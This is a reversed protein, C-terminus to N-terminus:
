QKKRGFLTERAKRFAIKIGLWLGIKIPRRFIGVLGVQHNDVLYFSTTNWVGTSPSYWEDGLEWGVVDEPALQYHKKGVDLRIM